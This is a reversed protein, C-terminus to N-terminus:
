AASGTRRRDATEFAIRTTMQALRSAVRDGLYARLDSIRLNSTILTPLMLNYRRNILRYTIEEVWESSKAAGLDDLLLLVDGRPDADAPQPTRKRVRSLRPIIGIGEIDIGAFSLSLAFSLPRFRQPELM